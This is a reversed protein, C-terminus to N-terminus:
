VGGDQKRRTVWVGGMVVLGLAFAWSIPLNSRVASGNLGAELASLRAELDNIQEQQGANEQKLEQNEAYLGQAAALAVGVADMTNIYDEGEGGLGDILANFEDAMMGVHLISEDQSKYNWATIPYQTLNELLLSTDVPTFNEKLDRNSVANWSSGGANLYMGSTLGSNTYFYVGGSSRVIWSNDYDCSVLSTTSNDGWAFCGDQDAQAYSGAAFSNEGTAANYSGGPV